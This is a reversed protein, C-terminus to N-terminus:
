SRSELVKAQDLIDEVGRKKATEKLYKEDIQRKFNRYLVKAKEIDGSVKFFKVHALRDVILDEVGVVNVKYPGVEVTRAKDLSANPFLAVIHVAVGLQKNLWIMGIRDFGLSALVRETTKSDTTTIDMDGTTFQGATYTEVAQGGVLFVHQKAKELRYTIYGLLLMKQNM